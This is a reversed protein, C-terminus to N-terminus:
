LLMLNLCDKKFLLTVESLFIPIFEARGENIAKRTNGGMFFAKHKFHKEMGPKVYPLDGVILIHYINVDELEDKRRVLARILEMPAACGPQVAVNDGSKIVKVAEDASIIKSNYKSLWIPNRGETTRTEEITM